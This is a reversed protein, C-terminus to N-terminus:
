YGCIIRRNSRKRRKSIAKVRIDSSYSKVSLYILRMPFINGNYYINYIVYRLNFREYQTLSDFDGKRERERGEYDTACHQPRM